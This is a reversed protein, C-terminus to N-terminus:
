VALGSGGKWCFCILFAPEIKEEEKGGGGDM